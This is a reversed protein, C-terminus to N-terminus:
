RARSREQLIREGEPRHDLPEGLEGLVALDWLLDNAGLDLIQLIDLNALSTPIPGSLLNSHLDLEVVLNTLNGLSSPIQGSLTNGSLDLAQLNALNGLSSPIQGSLSTPPM